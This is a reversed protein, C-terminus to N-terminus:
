EIRRSRLREVVALESPEVPVGSAQRFFGVVQDRVLVPLPSRNADSLAVEPHSFVIIAQVRRVVGQMLLWRELADVQARVQFIPNPIVNWSPTSGCGARRAIPWHKDDPRIQIHGPTNKVEVVWLGAPGSVIFDLEREGNALTPDPLKVRNLLTFDDPLGGLRELVAAEGEVGSLRGPDVSTTGPLALFFVFLVAMGALLLALPPSWSAALGVILLSAPLAAALRM